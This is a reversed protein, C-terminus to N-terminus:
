QNQLYFPYLFISEKEIKQKDWGGKIDSCYSVRKSNLKFVSMEAGGEKIFELKIVSKAKSNLFYQYYNCHLYILM